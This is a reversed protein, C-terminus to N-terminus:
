KREIDLLDGKDYWNKLEAKSVAFTEDSYGADGREKIERLGSVKNSFMNNPKITLSDGQIGAVKYLTYQSETTKMEFVDGAQPALILQAIKEDKKKENVVVLTIIIALLALGSFTWIPTKSRSKVDQLVSQMSSTMEKERLVQKCHACESAAVKGIPFFPIWFIHAWKQYVHIETSNQTGCNPCKDSVLEKALLKSRTGYVIM